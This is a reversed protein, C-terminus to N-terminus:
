KVLDLAANATERTRDLEGMAAAYTEENLRTYHWINDHEMFSIGRGKVTHAVIGKPQPERSALLEDLTAALAREDHGDVERSELGFATLKEALSGLDL